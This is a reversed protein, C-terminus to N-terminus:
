FRVGQSPENRNPAPTRTLWTICVRAMLFGLLCALLRQWGKHSFVYFGALSIATRLMFSGLFWVSPWPSHIGLRVTWWLGGFFIAGLVCGALLPLALNPLEIM